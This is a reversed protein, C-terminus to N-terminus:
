VSIERLHRAAEEPPTPNIYFGTGWEFGAVKTLTPILEIHWHFHSMEDDVFPASHLVLNFPPRDLAKDLKRTVVSLADALSALERRQASEYWPEHRRPLFWLEFPFRSAYPAIAVVHDNEYVVRERGALEQDLMDCFACRQKFDYYALAGDLEHQLRRPVLPLAILQSHAHELSAGAQVGHNKFVVASRIRADNRLDLLREQWTEFVLAIHETELAHLDPVHENSEIIVEHAGIGSMADYIGDGWKEVEGEVKLAPYKNPIVRVKWQGDDGNWTRIAPPTASENGACFPCFDAQPREITVRFDSPRKSRETAIIVWRGSIPDKRLSPM